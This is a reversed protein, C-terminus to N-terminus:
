VLVASACASMPSMGPIAVSAVGAGCFEGEAAVGFDSATVLACCSISPIGPIAGFFAAGAAGKAGFGASAGSASASMSAMGPIFGVLGVAPVEGVLFSMLPIGPM